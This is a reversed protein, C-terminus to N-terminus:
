NDKIEKLLTLINSQSEEGPWADAAQSYASKQFLNEDTEDVPDSSTKQIKLRPKSEEDEENLGVEFKPSKDQVSDNRVTEVQFIKRRKGLVSVSDANKDAADALPEGTALAAVNRPDSQQLEELNADKTAKLNNPLDWTNQIKHLEDRSLQHAPAEQFASNLSPQTKPASSKDTPSKDGTQVKESKEDNTSSKVPDLKQHTIM